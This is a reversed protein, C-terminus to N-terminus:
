FNLLESLDYCFRLCNIKEPLWTDCRNIYVQLHESCAIAMGSSSPFM